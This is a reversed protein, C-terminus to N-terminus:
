SVLCRYVGIHDHDSGGEGGGERGGGERGGERESCCSARLLAM